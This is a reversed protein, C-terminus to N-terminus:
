PVTLWDSRRTPPAFRPQNGGPQHTWEDVQVRGDAHCRLLTSSRTGYARQQMQVFPSSLAQEVDAPVGTAPLEHLEALRTDALSATLPAQWADAEDLGALATQLAASLRRTKPWPTDLSANSVTHVGAGIRRSHLRPAQPAHPKAPDRNGIWAWSRTRLDGVVLNFGAYAAPDIAACLAEADLTGQLWRAVLEGRSRRGREAQAHRVNTLMAIRGQTGVGMWTGGDRLDRGALVETGDDLHWRHLPATPRQHDEDRNAAILLPCGPAADIAFAILCM